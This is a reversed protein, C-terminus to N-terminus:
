RSCHASPPSYRRKVTRPTYDNPFLSVLEACSYRQRQMTSAAYRASAADPFLAVRAIQEARDPYLRVLDDGKKPHIGHHFQDGVVYLAWIRPRGELASAVTEDLSRRLPEALQARRATKTNRAIYGVIAIVVCLALVAAWVSTLLALYLLGGLSPAFLAGGNRWGTQSVYRM